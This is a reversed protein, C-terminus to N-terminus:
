IRLLWRVYFARVDVKGRLAFERVLMETILYSSLVFFLDLGFRGVVSAASMWAFAVEDMGELAVALAEPPFAHRLFDLLFAM